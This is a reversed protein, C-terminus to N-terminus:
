EALVVSPSASAPTAPSHPGIAQARSAQSAPLGLASAIATRAREALQRRDTLSPDMPPLFEVRVSLPGHRLLRALHALLNDDGVFPAVPDPEPDAGYRLAVPQIVVGPQQGIAFLRPHFRLLSTGDSTTGEPFIAVSRGARVRKGIIETLQATQNAGRAIFLTGGIAAMWGVLPWGRIEAKSLFDIGGQAGLVPIDLWSVHNVVLLAGPHLTGAVEIHLGLDRCVRAHWWRIARPTWRPRRGLQEGIAMALALALGTILTAILRFLRWIRTARPM